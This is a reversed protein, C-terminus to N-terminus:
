GHASERREAATAERAERRARNRDYLEDRSLNDAASFGSRTARIDDIVDHMMRRRREFDQDHGGEVDLGENARKGTLRRLYDRVLASVSTDLEAARIRARRYTADDVSVTINRM